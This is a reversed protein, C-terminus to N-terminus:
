LVIFFPILGFSGPLIAEGPGTVDEVDVGFSAVHDVPDRSLCPLASGRNDADITISLHRNDAEM